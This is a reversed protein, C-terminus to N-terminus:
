VQAARGGAGDQETLLSSTKEGCLLKRSKMFANREAVVKINGKRFNTHLTSSRQVVSLLCVPLLGPLLVSISAM